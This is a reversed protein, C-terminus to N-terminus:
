RRAQPPRPPRLPLPRSPPQLALDIPRLPTEYTWQAQVLPQEGDYSGFSIKLNGDGRECESVGDEV